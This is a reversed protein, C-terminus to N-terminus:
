SAQEDASLVAQRDTFFKEMFESRLRYTKGTGPPGYLIINLPLAEPAQNPMILKSTSGSSSSPFAVRRETEVLNHADSIEVVTTRLGETDPLEWPELTLWEVARRHPAEPQSTPDFRYPGTVRGVGMIRKGDAALVFDGESIGGVFNRVEGAKRSAVNPKMGYTKELGQRIINRLEQDAPIDALNGLEAWGIAVFNGNKM